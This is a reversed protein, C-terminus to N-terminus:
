GASSAATRQSATARATAPTRSVPRTPTISRQVQHWYTIM